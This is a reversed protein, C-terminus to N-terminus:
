IKKGKGKGKDNRKTSSEVIDKVDKKATPYNSKPDDAFLVEDGKGGMKMFENPDRNDDPRAEKQRSPGAQAGALEHQSPGDVTETPNKKFIQLEPKNEGLPIKDAIEVTNISSLLTRERLVGRRTVDLGAIGNVLGNTSDNVGPTKADDMSPFPM